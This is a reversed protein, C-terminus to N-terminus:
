LTQQPRQTRTQKNIRPMEPLNEHIQNKNASNKHGATDNVALWPKNEEDLTAISMAM